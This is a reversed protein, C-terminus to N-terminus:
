LTDPRDINDPPPPLSGVETEYIDDLLDRWQNYQQEVSGSLTVTRDELEIVQPAIEEELSLGLEELAEIQIQAEQRAGLGSQLLQGGSHMAVWGATRILDESSGGSNNTAALIGLIVALGGTLLQSRAQEELERLAVSEEYSLKRWEQYPSLMREDFGTYYDQLTDIYVRDRERIRRIRDLMPDGAAPLRVIQWEGQADQELYDGFANASFSRAFRLESVLRIQRLEDHSQQDMAGLLDNAVRNYIAQFPDFSHRVTLSYAYRSSRDSYERDLWLTGRSDRATVEISLTEGDSHLIKGEILLDVAQNSNPLVRVAGWAGSNQLAESLRAAVFHSEAKRVEPYILRAENEDDPIDDLGPDFAVIGVDLLLAEPIDSGGTRVAPVSSSNVTKSVCGSVLFVCILLTLRHAIM